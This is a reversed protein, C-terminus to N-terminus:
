THLGKAEAVLPAARRTSPPTTRETMQRPVPFSTEERLPLFTLAVNGYPLKDSQCHGYPTPMAVLLHRHIM